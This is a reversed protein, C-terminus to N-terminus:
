FIISGKETEVDFSFLNVTLSEAIVRKLATRTLFFKLLVMAKGIFFCFM